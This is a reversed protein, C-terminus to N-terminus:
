TIGQSPLMNCSAFFYVSRLGTSVSNKKKKKSKHWSSLFVTVYKHTGTKNPRQLSAPNTDQQSLSGTFPLFLAPLLPFAPPLGTPTPPHICPSVCYSFPKIYWADGGPPIGGKREAELGNSFRLEFASERLASSRHIILQGQKGM